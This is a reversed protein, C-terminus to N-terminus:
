HPVLVHCYHYSRNTPPNIRGVRSPTAEDVHDFFLLEVGTASRSYLSFNIGGNVVTAGLPASRGITDARKAVAGAPDRECRVVADLEPVQMKSMRPWRTRMNASIPGFFALWNALRPRMRPKTRAAPVDIGSM